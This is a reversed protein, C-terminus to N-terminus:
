GSETAPVLNVCCNVLLQKEMCLIHLINVLNLSSHGGGESSVSLDESARTAPM